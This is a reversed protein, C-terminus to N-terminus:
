TKSNDGLIDRGEHRSRTEKIYYFSPVVVLLIYGYPLSLVLSRYDIWAPFRYALLIGFGVMAIRTLTNIGVLKKSGALVQKGALRARLALHFINYLSILGGLIAGAILSKVPTSFWLIILILFIISSIIVIMRYSRAMETKM